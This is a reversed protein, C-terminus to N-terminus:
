HEDHINIKKHKQKGRVKAQINNNYEVRKEHKSM